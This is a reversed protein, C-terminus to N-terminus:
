WFIGGILKDTKEVHFARSSSDSILFRWDKIAGVEAQALQVPQPFDSVNV